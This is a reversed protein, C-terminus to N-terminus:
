SSFIEVMHEGSRGANVLLAEVNKPASRASKIGVVAKMALPFPRTYELAKVAKLWPSVEVASPTWPSLFKSGFTAVIAVSQDLDL